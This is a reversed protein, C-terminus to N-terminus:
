RADHAIEVVHVHLHDLQTALEDPVVVVRLVLQEQDHGPAQAHLQAGAVAIEAGAFEDDNRVASLWQGSARLSSTWTTRSSGLPVSFVPLTILSRM